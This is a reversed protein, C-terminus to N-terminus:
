FLNCFLLLLIDTVTDAVSLSKSTLKKIIRWVKEAKKDKEKKNAKNEEKETTSQQSVDVKQEDLKSSEADFLKPNTKIRPSRPSDQKVPFQHM